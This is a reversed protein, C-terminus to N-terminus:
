LLNFFTILAQNSHFVVAGLEESVCLYLIPSIKCFVLASGTLSIVGDTRVLEKEERIILNKGDNGEPPGSVPM